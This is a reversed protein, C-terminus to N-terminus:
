FFQVYWTVPLLYVYSSWLVMLAFHKWMCLMEVIELIELGYIDLAGLMSLTDRSFVDLFWSLILGFEYIVVLIIISGILM